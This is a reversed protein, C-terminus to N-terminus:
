PSPRHPDDGTASGAIIADSLTMAAHVFDCIGCEVTDDHGIPAHLLRISPLAEQKDSSLTLRVILFSNMMYLLWARASSKRTENTESEGFM